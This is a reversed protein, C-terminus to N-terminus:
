IVDPNKARKSRKTPYQIHTVTCSVVSRAIMVRLMLRTGVMFVRVCVYVCVPACSVTDVRGVQKGLEKRGVVSRDRRVRISKMRRVCARSPPDEIFLFILM